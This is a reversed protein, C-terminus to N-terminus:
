KRRLYNNEYYIKLQEEKEHIYNCASDIEEMTPIAGLLTSVDIPEGVVVKTRNYFHKAKVIYVPIIPAKGLHAMLVVGSKFSRVDEEKVNVTGEPFIMVAKGDKLTDCVSRLSRVSVNQKDIIICNMRTFFWKKFKTNFIDKTAISYVRRKWFTLLLIIPDVFTTHNAAILVGGKVNKPVKESVRIIKPRFWVLAPIAGTVKVFDYLFNCKRKKQTKNDKSNM